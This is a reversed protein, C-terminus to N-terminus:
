RDTRPDYPGRARALYADLAAPLPPYHSCQRADHAPDLGDRLAECDPAPAPATREDAIVLIATGDPGDTIDLVTFGDRVAAAEATDDDAARYTPGTGGGVTMTAYATTATAPQTM